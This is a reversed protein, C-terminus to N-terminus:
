IQNEKLVSGNIEPWVFYQTLFDTLASYIWEELSSSHLCPPSLSARASPLPENRYLLVPTIGGKDLSSSFCTTSAECYLINLPNPM